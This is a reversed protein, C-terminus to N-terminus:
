VLGQDLMADMVKVVGALAPYFFDGYRRGVTHQIFPHYAAGHDIPSFRDSRQGAV